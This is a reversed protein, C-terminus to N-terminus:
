KINEQYGYKKMVPMVKSWHKLPFPKEGTIVKNLGRIPLGCEREFTSVSISPREKLFERVQDTIFVRHQKVTM